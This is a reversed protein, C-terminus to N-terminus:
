TARGVNSSIVYSCFGKTDSLKRQHGEKPTNYWDREIHKDEGGGGDCVRDTVM